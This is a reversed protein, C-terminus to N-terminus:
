LGLQAAVSAAQAQAQEIAMEHQEEEGPLTLPQPMNVKAKGDESHAWLWLRLCTEINRLLFTETHNVAVPNRATKTRSDEPLQAALAAARLVNGTLDDGTVGM